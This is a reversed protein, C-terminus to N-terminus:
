LGGTTLHGMIARRQRSSQDEPRRPHNRHPQNLESPKFPGDSADASPPKPCFPVSRGGAGRFVLTVHDIFVLTKQVKVLTYALTYAHVCTHVAQTSPPLSKAIKLIRPECM